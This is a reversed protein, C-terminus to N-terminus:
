QAQAVTSDAPGISMMEITVSYQYADRIELPAPRISELAVMTFDANQQLSALFSSIRQKSYAMGEITFQLPSSGDQETIRELWLNEPTITNLYQLMAFRQDSTGTLNRVVDIRESVDDRLQNVENQLDVADQLMTEQQRWNQLESQKQSIQGDLQIYQWGLLGAAAIVLLTLVVRYDLSIIAKKPRLERPLLNISVYM